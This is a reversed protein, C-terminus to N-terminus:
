PGSSRRRNDSLLAGTASSSRRHPSRSLRPDWDEDGDPPVSHDLFFRHLLIGAVFGGIHAWWAVGGAAANGVLMGGTGKAFQGIFWIILFITAPIEFFLPYIFIPFLVLVTSRPFLIFYAGMIGSVAGSAGVVPIRSGASFFTHTLVAIIGCVIYFSLFRPTGMSDEVNDGFIWLCWLNSVIHFFGVHLFLHTIFPWYDNKPFHSFCEALPQTFRGPVLGFFQYIRNIAAADKDFLLLFVLANVFILSWVGVPSRKSPITDRIPFM